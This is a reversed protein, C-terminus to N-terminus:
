REFALSAKMSFFPKTEFTWLFFGCRLGMGRCIWRDVALFDTIRERMSCTKGILFRLRSQEDPGDADGLGCRPDPQCIDDVVHAAEEEELPHVGGRLLGSGIGEM